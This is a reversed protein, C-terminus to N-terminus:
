HDISLGNLTRFLREFRELTVDAIKATLGSLNETLYRAPRYHNFTAGNTLPTQDLYEELRRLIRSSHGTLDNPSIARGGLDASFEENVLSLYFDPEFMDEVDAEPTSIFDAYTLVKKKELLKRKYINEIVQQDKKQYDVLVCVNLGRQAGLLAVFTPVKDSGGVPTITWSPSLGTRGLRELVSSIAQLFLLDSPGEVVLSNPGVFLTQYLDYGLAGQLPFLSDDTAELVESLVKTGGVPVQMVDLSDTDQVIRVRDFKQPDVMFPSHTTYIVQHNDKLEESIFRLLDAQARGHLYLGPEDLLLILPTNSSEHKSFWALFSFFWVFGRSRSSMPTTVRHKSDYVRVWLNLGARMDEPDDPLGPRVDFKLSVHRNQSWYKLAKETIHNGAGELRNTLEETRTLSAPDRLNLRALELFGLLPYDSDKLQKQADRQVLQTLSVQGPMLYYEDFYLFQPFASRLCTDFIEKDLGGAGEIAAIEQLLREVREEDDPVTLSEVRSRLDSISAADELETDIATPLQAHQRLYLAARADNVSLQVLLRGDYSRSVVLESKSLIGAGYKHEVLQVESETLSFTATVVVAPERENREVAIRYDEVSWRPYDDTVNFVEHASIIPNLHYLAKLIATKGAENKGVLCTIDNEVRFERSDLISQFEKIHVKELLM